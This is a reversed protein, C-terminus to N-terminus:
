EAATLVLACRSPIYVQVYNPLHNHGLPDTFHKVSEDIRGLGAFAESDSNLVVKLGGSLKTGIRYDSFSNTPHFNFIFLLKDKEFVIVKDGENKL